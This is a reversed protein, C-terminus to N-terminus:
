EKKCVRRAGIGCSCLTVGDFVQLIKNDNESVRDLIKNINKTFSQHTKNTIM